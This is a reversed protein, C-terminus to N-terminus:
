TTSSIFGDLTILLSVLKGISSQKRPRGRGRRLGQGHPRPSPRSNVSVFLNPLAKKRSRCRKVPFIARESKSEDLDHIIIPDDINCTPSNDALPPFEPPPPIENKESSM